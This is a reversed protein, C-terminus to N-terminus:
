CDLEDGVIIVQVCVCGGLDASQKFDAVKITMDIDNGATSSGSM